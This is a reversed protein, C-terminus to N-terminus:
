IARLHIDRLISCRTSFSNKGMRSGPTKTYYVPHGEFIDLALECEPTIQWLVGPVEAGECPEITAHSYFRLRWDRMCLTQVPRAAPCRFAMADISMNAGYAFYLSNM